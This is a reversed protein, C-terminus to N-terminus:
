PNSIHTLSFMVLSKKYYSVSITLFEPLLVSVSLTFFFLLLLVFLLVLLIFFVLIDHYRLGTNM